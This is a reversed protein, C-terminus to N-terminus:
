ICFKPSWMKLKQVRCKETQVQGRRGGAGRSDGGVTVPSTATGLFTHFRRPPRCGGQYWKIYLLSRM